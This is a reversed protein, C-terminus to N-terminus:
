KKGNDPTADAVSKPKNKIWTVLQNTAAKLEQIRGFRGRHIQDLCRIAALASKRRLSANGSEEWIQKFLHYARWYEEQADKLDRERKLSAAREEGNQGFWDIQLDSWNDDRSPETTEPLFASTQFGGWLHNNFFVRRSNEVLFDAYSFLAQLREEKSLGPAQHKKFLRGAERMRGSRTYAKISSFYEAAKDYQEERAYRVALSYRILPLTNPHIKLYEELDEISLQADLLYRLDFAYDAFPSFPNLTYRDLLYRDRLKELQVAADL